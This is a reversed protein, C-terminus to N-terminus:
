GSRGCTVWPNRSSRPGAWDSPEIVQDLFDAALRRLGETRYPVRRTLGMGPLEVAHLSFGGLEAM